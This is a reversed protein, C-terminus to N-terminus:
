RPRAIPDSTVARLGLREAGARHAVPGRVSRRVLSHHAAQARLSRCASGLVAPVAPRRLELVIHDRRGLVRGCGGRDGPAAPVSPYVRLGARVGRGRLIRCNHLPHDHPGLWFDAANEHPKSPYSAPRFEARRRHRISYPTHLVDHVRAEDGLDLLRLAVGFLGFPDAEPAELDREATFVPRVGDREPAIVPVALALVEMGATEARMDHRKLTDERRM